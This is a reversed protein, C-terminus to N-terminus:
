EMFQALSLDKTEPPEPMTAWSVQPPEKRRNPVIFDELNWTTTPLGDITRVSAKRPHNQLKQGDQPFLQLLIRNPQRDIKAFQVEAQILDNFM